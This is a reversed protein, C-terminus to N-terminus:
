IEFLTFHKPSTLKVLSLVFSSSGLRSWYPSSQHQFRDTSANTPWTQSVLSVLCVHLPVAVLGIETFCFFFNNVECARKDTYPGSVWPALGELM